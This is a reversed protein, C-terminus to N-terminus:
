GPLERAVVRWMGRQAQIRSLNSVVLDQEGEPPLFQRGSKPNSVQTPGAIQFLSCGIKKAHQAFQILRPCSANCHHGNRFVTEALGDVIAEPPGGRRAARCSRVGM